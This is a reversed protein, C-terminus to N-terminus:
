ASSSSRGRAAKACTAPEARGELHLVLKVVEMGVFLTAAVGTAIAWDFWSLAVTHFAAQLFPIYIVLIHMGLSLAVAAILWKNELLGSLASRWTSRCNYVNFLQFMMLTTSTLPLVLDAPQTRTFVALAGLSILIAAAFAVKPAPVPPGSRRVDRGALNPTTM